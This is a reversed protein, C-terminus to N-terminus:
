ESIASLRLVVGGLTVNGDMGFLQRAERKTVLIQFSQPTPKEIKEVFIKIEKLQNKFTEVTRPPDSDAVILLCKMDDEETKKLISTLYFPGGQTNANCAEALDLDARFAWSTVFSPPFNHNELEQRFLKIFKIGREAVFVPLKRAFLLQAQRAFTYQQFDFEAIESNMILRRYQKKNPDLFYGTNDNPDTGGFGKMGFSQMNNSEYEASFLAELEDYQMLAEEYMQFIEFIFALGEKVFFNV